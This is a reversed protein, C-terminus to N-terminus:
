RIHGHLEGNEVRRNSRRDELFNGLDQGSISHCMHSDMRMWLGSLGGLCAYFVRSKLQPKREPRGNCPAAFWGPSLGSTLPRFRGRGPGPGSRTNPGFFLRAIASKHGFLGKIRPWYVNKVLCWSIGITFTLFNLALVKGGNLRLKLKEEAEIGDYRLTTPKKQVSM